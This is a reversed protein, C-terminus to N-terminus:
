RLQFEGFATLIVDIKNIGYNFTCTIIWNLDIKIM